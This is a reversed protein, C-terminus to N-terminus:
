SGSPSRRRRRSPVGPSRGRLNLLPSDAPLPREDPDQRRRPAGEGRRPCGRRCSSSRSTTRRRPRRKPIASPCDLGDLGALAERYRGALPGARRKGRYAACSSSGSRRAFSTSGTTSARRLSTTARERPGPAPGVHADDDRAVPAPAHARRARRRRHRGHRGRRDPPEQERLLQLLRRGRADRLRPRRYTAGPAHAADEVVALSHRGRDRRRRGHRM